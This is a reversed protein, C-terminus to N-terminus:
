PRSATQNSFPRGLKNFFREIDALAQEDHVLEVGAARAAAEASRDDVTPGLGGTVIGLDARDGIEGLVAVLGNLEDGVCHHRTVSVGQRELREAIYASNSDVLAGTRIEDGTALIEAKM